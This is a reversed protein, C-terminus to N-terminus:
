QQASVSKRAWNLAAFVLHYIGFVTGMLITPVSGAWNDIKDAMLPIALGSLLSAWGLLEVSRPAFFSTSLLMLGYSCIWITVLDLEAAGLYGTAFFWATFTAPILCFPAITRLTLRQRAAAMGDGNTRSGRVLFFVAAIATLLLVDIWAFAFNRAQIPRDLFRKVENNLYILAATLISLTGGILAVRALVAQYM